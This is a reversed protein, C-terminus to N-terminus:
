PSLTDLELGNTRPGFVAVIAGVAIMAAAIMLFVGSPGYGALVWAVAYGVFISSARSLSYVFGVARARIRTPYVEAQYAHFASSFWNVALTMAIGCAVIALPSRSAGFAIGAVAIAAALLAIQWKREFRDAFRMAILPGVPYALGIMATYQLSRVFTVHESFLLTAVWTTFGYYGVTQLVNFSALLWTRGRYRRSWIESWSSSARRSSSWRDSEPLGSRLSYAFLAGVSGILAVIRWGALSGFDRPVLLASLIAVVPVATFTIAQSFAILKGRDNAPAIETVYADVTIIQVGIGIGAVARWADVAVASRALAMLLTAASYVLLSWAFSNRRGFRDSFWGFLLTGAFMGGFGSAAFSAFAAGGGGTPSFLGERYLGLAIYSTMFLDYAEFWGGACIRAVLALRSRDM